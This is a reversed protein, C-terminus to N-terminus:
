YDCYYTNLVWKLQVETTVVTPITGRTTRSTQREAPHPPLHSQPPHVHSTPPPLHSTPSTHRRPLLHSRPAFSILARCQDIDIRHLTSSTDTLVHVVSRVVILTESRGRPARLSCGALRLAPFGRGARGRPRARLPRLVRTARAIEDRSFDVCVCARYCFDM